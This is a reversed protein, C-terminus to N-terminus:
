AQGRPALAQLAAEIAARTGVLAVVDGEELVVHGDPVLVVDEGRSIAVITAGTRGRLELETLAQGVAPSAPEIKLAYPEGFGPLLQQARELAQEAEHRGGAGSYRGIADVFAEAAARVHGHLDATTRVVLIGFVVLSAVLVLPGVPAPVFPQTLAVLPAGVAMVTTMQVTVVLARRPAAAMDLKNPEPDPFARRSLEHGLARGTRLIGALFPIAVLVAAGAVVGQATWPALGFASSLRAGLPVAMVSAGISLGIVVGADVLLGRVIRSMRSREASSGPRTRISEFWTDYLTVFTQLPRPLNKDLASAVPGAARILWPTLLTTIASVGVIIPYLV